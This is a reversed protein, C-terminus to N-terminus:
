SAEETGEEEEDTKTPVSFDLSALLESSGRSSNKEKRRSEADPFRVSYNGETEHISCPIGSGSRELIQNLFFIWAEWGKLNDPSPAECPMDMGQILEDVKTALGAKVDGETAKSVLRAELCSGNEIFTNKGAKTRTSLSFSAQIRSDRGAISGNILFGSGNDMKEISLGHLEEDGLFDSTLSIGLNDQLKGSQLLALASFTRPTFLTNTDM